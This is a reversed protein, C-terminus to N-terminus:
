NLKRIMGKGLFSNILKGKLATRNCQEMGMTGTQSNGQGGGGAQVQGDELLQAPSETDTAEASLIAKTSAMIARYSSM